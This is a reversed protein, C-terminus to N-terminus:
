SYMLFQDIRIRYKDAENKETYENEIPYVDIWLERREGRLKVKYRYGNDYLGVTETTVSQFIPLAEIEKKITQSLNHLAIQQKMKSAVPIQITAEELRHSKSCTFDAQGTYGNLAINEYHYFLRGTKYFYPDKAHWTDHYGMATEEEVKDAEEFVEEFSKTSMNFFLSDFLVLQTKKFNQCAILSLLLVGLSLVIRITKKFRM